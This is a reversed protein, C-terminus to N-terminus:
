EAPMLIANACMLITDAFRKISVLTLIVVARGPIMPLWKESTIMRPALTVWTLYGHFRDRTNAAGRAPRRPENKREPQLSKPEAGDVSEDLTARQDADSDNFM